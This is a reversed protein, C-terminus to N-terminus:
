RVLYPDPIRLRALIESELQEMTAADSDTQHDYGMLHLFGHVALHSLHHLIKKGEKRSERALTEYAIAIDGLMRKAASASAPFSLVNTPKDIRRWKRNLRRLAADSTLMVAVEGGPSSIERAAAAIAKRVAAPAEPLDSWQPSEVLVDISLASRRPARPRM